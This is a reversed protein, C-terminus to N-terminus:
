EHPLKVCASNESVRRYLSCNLVGEFCVIFFEKFISKGGERWEIRIPQVLNDSWPAAGFNSFFM